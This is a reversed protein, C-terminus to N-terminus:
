DIQIFIVGDIKVSKLIGQKIMKYVYQVTKDILKAYNRVTMLKNKDLM